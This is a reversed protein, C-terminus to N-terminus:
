FDDNLIVIVFLCPSRLICFPVDPFKVAIIRIIHQEMTMHM